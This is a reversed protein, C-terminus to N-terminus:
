EEAKFYKIISNLEIPQYNIMEVSVCFHKNDNGKGANHVHGHINYMGNDYNPAHSLFIEGFGEVQINIPKKSVEEFGAEQFASVSIRDHNGYVLKKHGKLQKTIEIIRNKNNLCFDGLFYVIDDDQVIENWNKIITNNMEEVSNFPRDCYKIVNKHDFHTDAIFYVKSM